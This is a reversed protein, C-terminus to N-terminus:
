PQLSLLYAMVDAKEAASCERSLVDKCNRRFWKDAKAADTFAKANFAPALPAIPKATSAHEGQRTPPTGHCSACSWEAGHRNNFFLQGKLASGPVGAQTSWRSLQEAPTTDGAHAAAAFALLAVTALHASFSLYHNM